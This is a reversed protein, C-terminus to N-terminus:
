IYEGVHVYVDLTDTQKRIILGGVEIITGEPENYLRRHAEDLTREIDNITPRHGERGGVVWTHYNWDFIQEIQESVMM